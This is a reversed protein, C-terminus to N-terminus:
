TPAAGREIRESEAHTLATVIILEVGRKLDSLPLSPELRKRRVAQESSLPIHVFGGRVGRTRSLRHMLAYFVHNCVFTGASDSVSAPIGARRLEAVITKIPLGSWYGVPGAEVIPRDVPTRGANDPNATDEINIAVREIAIGCSGAALGLCVVLEPEVDVMRRELELVAEGFICPLVAGEVRRGEIVQGNLATALEGSPNSREGGFPDFGTLLVSAV